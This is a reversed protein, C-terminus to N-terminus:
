KTRLAEVPDGTAARCAPIASAVAGIAKLQDGVEDGQSV